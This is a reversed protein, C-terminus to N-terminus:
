NIGVPIGGKRVDSVATYTVQNDTISCTDCAYCECDNYELSIFQTIGVASSTSNIAHHYYQQLTKIITDNVAINVRNNNMVSMIDAYDSMLNSVLGASKPTGIHLQNQMELTDIYPVVLDEAYTVYPYLQQHIRPTTVATLLDM